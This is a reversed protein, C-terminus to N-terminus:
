RIFEGGRLFLKRNPEPLWCLLFEAPRNTGRSRTDRPRKPERIFHVRHRCPLKGASIGSTVNASRPAGGSIGVATSSTGAGGASDAARNGTGTPQADATGGPVGPKKGEPSITVHAALNGAPPAVPASPGPTASLAILTQASGNPSTLQAAVEPDPDAAGEQKRQAVRPAVGANIQL